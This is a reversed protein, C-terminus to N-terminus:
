GQRVAHAHLVHAMAATLKRATPLHLFENPGHANSGPGLVGTVVFAASPFGRGLMAIFPISGGVGTRAPPNGYTSRSAEDLARGMWEPDAPADWGDEAAEVRVDVKAGYPPDATLAGVLARAAAAAECTPPVRIALKV